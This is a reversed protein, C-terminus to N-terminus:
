AFRSGSANAADGPQRHRLLSEPGCVGASDRAPRVSENRHRHDARGCNTEVATIVEEM